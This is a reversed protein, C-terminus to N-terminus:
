NILVAEIILVNENSIIGVFEKQSNMDKLVSLLDGKPITSGVVFEKFGYVGKYSYAIMSHKPNKTLVYLILESSPLISFKTQIPIAVRITQFYQFDSYVTASRYIEVQGYHLSNVTSESCIAVYVVEKFCVASISSPNFVQITQRQTFLNEENPKWIEIRGSMTLIVLLNCVAEVSKIQETVLKQNWSLKTNLICNINVENGYESYFAICINGALTLTSIKSPTSSHSTHYELFTYDQCSFMTQRYTKAIVDFLEIYLYDLDMFTIKDMNTIELKILPFKLDSFQFFDVIFSGNIGFYNFLIHSCFILRSNSNSKAHFKLAKPISRPIFAQSTLSTYPITLLLNAHAQFLNPISRQHLQFSSSLFHNWLVTLFRRYSHVQWFRSLEFKITTTKLIRTKSEQGNSDFITVMLFLSRTRRLGDMFRYRIRVGFLLIIRYGIVLHYGYHWVNKPNLSQCRKFICMTIWFTREIQM